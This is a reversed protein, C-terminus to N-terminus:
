IVLSLIQWAFKLGVGEVFGSSVSEYTVSPQLRVCKGEESDLLSGGEPSRLAMWPDM